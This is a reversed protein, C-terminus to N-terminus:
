DSLFANQKATAHETRRGMVMTKTGRQCKERLLITPRPRGKKLYKAFRVFGSLPETASNECPYIFIKFKWSRAFARWAALDALFM